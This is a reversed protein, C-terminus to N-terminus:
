CCVSSRSPKAAVIRCPTELAEILRDHFSQAFRTKADPASKGLKAPLPTSGEHPLRQLRLIPM